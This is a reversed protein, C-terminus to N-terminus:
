RTVSIWVTLSTSGNNKASVVHRYAGNGVYSSSVWADAGSNSVADGPVQRSWIGGPLQMSRDFLDIGLDAASGWVDIRHGKMDDSHKKAAKKAADRSLSSQGAGCDACSWGHGSLSFENGSALSVAAMSVVAAVLVLVLLLRIMASDEVLWGTYSPLHTVFAEGATDRVAKGFAMWLRPAAGCSRWRDALGM